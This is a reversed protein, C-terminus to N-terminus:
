IIKPGSDTTANCLIEGGKIDFECDDACLQWFYSKRFGFIYNLFNVISQMIMLLRSPEILTTVLTCALLCPNSERCSIFKRRSPSLVLDLACGTEYGIPVPVNKGSVFRFVNKFTWWHKNKCIILNYVIIRSNIVLFESVWTFRQPYNKKIYATKGGIWM